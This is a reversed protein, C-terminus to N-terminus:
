AHKEAAAALNGSNESEEGKAKLIQSEAWRRMRLWRDQPTERRWTGGDEVVRPDDNEYMVERALQEAINFAQGLAEHDYTDLSDLDLGQHAGLAGLTCMCGSENKLESTVLQKDPMADLANVLSRFFQQGRKGRTASTIIGRWKIMQWNDIDDSYGSRSM